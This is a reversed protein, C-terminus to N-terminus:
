HSTSEKVGPWIAQLGEIHRVNLCYSNQKFKKYQFSSVIRYTYIYINNENM